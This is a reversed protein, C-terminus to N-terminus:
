SHVVYYVKSYAGKCVAMHQAESDTVIIIIIFLYNPPNGSALTHSPIAFM